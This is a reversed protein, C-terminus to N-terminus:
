LELVICMTKGDDFADYLQIIRSHHLGSMIDIEREMNRRDEKRECTVFKAAFEM